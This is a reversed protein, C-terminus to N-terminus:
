PQLAPWSGSALETVSGDALHVQVIVQANYEGQSVILDAGDPSWALTYVQELEALERPEVEELPQVFLKTKLLSPENVDGFESFYAVQDGAPSLAPLFSYGDGYHPSIRLAGSGDRNAKWIREMGSPTYVMTDFVVGSGDPTWDYNGLQQDLAQYAGVATDFYAWKGRGEMFEIEEFGVVQGNASWQPRVLHLGREPKVLEATEDSDADVTWIGRALAADVGGRTVFYGPETSVAYAIRHAGPQWDYGALMVDELLAKTEGTSLNYAMLSFTFDLGETIQRGFERYFALWVGDSSWALQSYRIMGVGDVIIEGTGDSTLPTEDGGPLNKLRINGDAAVYALLRSPEPTPLATPEDTPAETPQDTPAAPTAVDVVPTPTGGSSDGAVLPSCGALVLLAAASLVIVIRM